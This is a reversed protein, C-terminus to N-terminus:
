SCPEHEPVREPFWMQLLAKLRLFARDTCRDLSVNSALDRYISSSRPRRLERLSREVAVKPDTPKQAAVPWLQESELWARLPMNRGAWGLCRDVWPSNGFVWIELEPDIVVVEAWGNLGTRRFRERLMAELELGTTAPTGQWAQDLLALAHAHSHRYTKLIEAAEHFCGPDRRPHVVVEHEIPHIGLAQPRTFLGQMVAEMNEDAVLCILDSM